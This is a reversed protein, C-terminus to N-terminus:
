GYSPRWDLYSKGNKEKRKLKTFLLISLGGLIGRSFALFASSVPINRRFVGITGFILMASVIMLVLRREDTKHEM